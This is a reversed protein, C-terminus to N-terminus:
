SFNFEFHNESSDAVLHVKCAEGLGLGVHQQRQQQPCRGNDIDSDSSMLKRKDRPHLLLKNAGDCCTTDMAHIGDGDGGGNNNADDDDDADDGDNDDVVYAFVALIYRTGATM